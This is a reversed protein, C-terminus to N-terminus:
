RGAEPTLTGIRQMGASPHLVVTVLLVQGGGAAVQMQSKQLQATVQEPSLKYLGGSIADVALGILGGFVLNGWVWGSVSRTLDMEFPQYGAMAVRITHRDNRKLDVVVPTVGHQMGDVTVQAGTPSSSVGIQQSTGHMITACAVLLPLTMLLLLSVPARLARLAASLSATNM